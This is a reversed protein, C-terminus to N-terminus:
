GEEGPEREVVCLACPDRTDHYGVEPTRCCKPQMAEIHNMRTRCHQCIAVFAANDLSIDVPAHAASRGLWTAGRRVVRQVLGLSQVLSTM